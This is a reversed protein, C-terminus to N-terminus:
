GAPTPAPHATQLFRTIGQAIGQAAQSQWTPQQLLSADTANRMNACEIFVKPVTSLNLGGLDDRLVLGDHGYYDAFPEKTTSAFASRLDLALQHSPVVIATNNSISSVVAEP